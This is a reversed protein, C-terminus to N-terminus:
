VIIEKCNEIVIFKEMNVITDYNKFIGPAVYVLGLGDYAIVGSTTMIVCTKRGRDSLTIINDQFMDGAFLSQRSNYKLQPLKLHNGKFDLDYYRIERTGSNYFFLYGNSCMAPHGCGDEEVIRNLVNGDFDIIEIAASTKIAIRSTLLSVGIYDGMNDIQCIEKSTQLNIVKGYHYYLPFYQGYITEFLFGDYNDIDGTNAKFCVKSESNLVFVIYGGATKEILYYYKDDCQKYGWYLKNHKISYAGSIGRRKYLEIIDDFPTLSLKYGGVPIIEEGTLLNLLGENEEKDLVKIYPPKFESISNYHCYWLMRGTHDVIDCGDEMDDVYWNTDKSAAYIPNGNVYGICRCREYGPIIQYCGDSIRISANDTCIYDGVLTERCLNLLKTSFKNKLKPVGDLGIYYLSYTTGNRYLLHTEDMISADYRWHYGWYYRSERFGEKDDYEAIKNLMGKADLYYLHNTEAEFLLLQHIYYEKNVTKKRSEVIHYKFESLMEGKDSLLKYKDDTTKVLCCFPTSITNDMAVISKLPKGCHPCFQASLPLPGRFDCGENKCYQLQTEIPKATYPCVKFDDPHEKGCHPCKM